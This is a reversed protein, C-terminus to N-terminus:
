RRATAKKKVVKKAPAKCVTHAKHGRGVRHCTRQIARLFAVV